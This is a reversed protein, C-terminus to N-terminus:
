NVEYAEHVDRIKRDLKEIRNQLSKIEIQIAPSPNRDRQSELFALRLELQQKKSVSAEYRDQQFRAIMMRVMLIPSGTFGAVLSDTIPDAEEYLAAVAAAADANVLVSPIRDMMKTFDKPAMAYQNLLRAFLVAREEVFKAEARSVRMDDALSADLNASEKAYIYNLLSLAYQSVFSMHAAARVLFAAKANMGEKIIDRELYKDLNSQVAVANTHVDHLRVAVEDIFNPQRPRSKRDLAFLIDKGLKEVGVDKVPNVRFATAASDWSPIAASVLEKETVRLDEAVTSREFRPLLKKVFDSINM